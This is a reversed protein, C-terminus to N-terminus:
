PFYNNCSPHSRLTGPVPGDPAAALGSPAPASTPLLRHTHTGLPTPPEGDEVLVATLAPSVTVVAQGIVGISARATRSSSPRRAATLGRVERGGVRVEGDEDLVANM